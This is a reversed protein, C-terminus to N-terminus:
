SFYVATKGMGEGYAAAQRAAAAKPNAYRSTMCKKNSRRADCWAGVHFSM